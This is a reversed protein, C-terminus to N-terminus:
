KLLLMKKIISNTSTTLNYFYVGSPLGGNASSANFEIEHKGMDFEGNALVAVERGLIDYVKLKINDKSALTFSIKTIPNFPNPYNQLLKIETPIFELNNKVGVINKKKAVFKHAPNDGLQSGCSYLGLLTTDTYELNSFVIFTVNELRNDTNILFCRDQNCSTDIEVEGMKEFLVSGRFLGNRQYINLEIPYDCSGVKQKFEEISLDEITEVVFVQTTDSLFNISYQAYNEINLLCLFLFIIQHTKIKM